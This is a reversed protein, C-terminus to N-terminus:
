DGALALAGRPHRGGRVDAVAELADDLSTVPVVLLDRAVAVDAVQGLNASPVLFVSAPRRDGGPATAGLVKQRVGGVPGVTGDSALTGTGAVVTGGTLDQPDLLDVISLAFMLGASPGGIVGADIAVDLPLQSHAGDPEEPVDYGAHRLAVATAARQSDLMLAANQRAVEVRDVGAPFLVTRPVTDVSSAFVARVWDDLDLGEEVAVTTLLLEGSSSYSATGDIEVLSAANEVPGPTLAVYCAPSLALSECPVGGRVVFTALGVVLLAVLLRRM